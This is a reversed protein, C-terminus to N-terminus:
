SRPGSRRTEDTATPDFENLIYACPDDMYIRTEEMRLRLNVCEAPTFLPSGTATRIIGAPDDDPHFIRDSNHLEYFFDAADQESKIPTSYRTVTLDIWQGANNNGAANEDYFADLSDFLIVCDDTISLIRGDNLEVMDVMCNGGTNESFIKKVYNM